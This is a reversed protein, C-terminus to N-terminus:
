PSFFIIVTVQEWNLMIRHKLMKVTDAALFILSVIGPLYFFIFAAESRYGRHEKNMTQLKQTLYTLVECFLKIVNFSKYTRSIWFNDKCNTNM